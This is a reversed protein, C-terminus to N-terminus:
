EDDEDFDDEDEFDEDDGDEGYNNGSPDFQGEFAGDSQEIGANKKHWSDRLDKGDPTTVGWAVTTAPHAMQMLDVLRKGYGKGRKNAEVWWIENVGQNPDHRYDIYGQPITIKWGDGQSREIKADPPLPGHELPQEQAEVWQSFLKM